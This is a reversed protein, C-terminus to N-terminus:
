ELVHTCDKVIVARAASSWLPSSTDANLEPEGSQHHIAFSATPQTVKCVEQSQALLAPLCCSLFSLATKM